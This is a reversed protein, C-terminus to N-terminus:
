AYIDIDNGKFSFYELTKNYIKLDAIAEAKDIYKANNILNIQKSVIDIEVLYFFRKIKIITIM